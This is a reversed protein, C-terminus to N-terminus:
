KRYSARLKGTNPAPRFFRYIALCGAVFSVFYAACRLWFEVQEQRATIVAVLSVFTPWLDRVHRM